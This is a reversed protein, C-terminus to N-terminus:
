LRTLGRPWAYPQDWHWATVTAPNDRGWCLQYGNRMDGETDTTDHHGGGSGVPQRVPIRHRITIKDPGILVDKVLLSLVRQRERISATAASGRLKHTGFSPM